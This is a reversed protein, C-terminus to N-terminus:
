LEFIEKASDVLQLRGDLSAQKIQVTPKHMIKNTLLRAMERIVEEPCDGSRVKQLAKNVEAHRIDDIKARYNRIMDVVSLSNLKRMYHQVQLDIIDEAQKAALQRSAMNDEVVQQLDDINYLYVDSLEAVEPEIDRPVALDVIFIPRRKRLKLASEFCGKGLIPLPSATASIVIDAQHLYTAIDSFPIVKASYNEALLEAKELSRNAVMINSVQKDKLYRLALEITEGAGIVLATNNAVNTFIHRTLSIASYAISVPNASIGTQTRIQKTSAFIYQFLRQFNPGITGAKQAIAYASKMQGLIQPEGLVMSDLGSAVRLIHRVASEDQHIYIYQNLENQSLHQYSALWEILAEEQGADCYIETRNCTSLIAAETKKVRKVLDQLSAPLTNASIALRERISLPTSKHNVGCAILTM